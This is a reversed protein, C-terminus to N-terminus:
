KRKPVALEEDFLGAAVVEYAAPTKKRPGNRSSSPGLRGAPRTCSRTTGKEPGSEQVHKGSTSSSMTAHTPDPEPLYCPYTRRRITSSRGTTVV